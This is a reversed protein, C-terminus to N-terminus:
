HWRKVKARPVKEEYEKLEPTIYREMNKLTQRRQYNLPVQSSQLRSVEIYYGHVRNYGVKLTNIGTREKERAELQVLYDSAGESLGRWEDLESNYGERIVGGDRILM